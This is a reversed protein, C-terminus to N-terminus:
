FVVGVVMNTIFLLFLGSSFGVRCWGFRDEYLCSCYITYFHKVMFDDGTYHLSHERLTLITDVCLSYERYECERNINCDFYGNVM